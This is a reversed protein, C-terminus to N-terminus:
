LEITEGHQAHCFFEEVESAKVKRDVEDCTVCHYTDIMTNDRVKFFKGDESVRVRYCNHKESNSIDIITLHQVPTIQQMEQWHKGSKSRNFAPANMTTYAGSGTRRCNVVIQINIM